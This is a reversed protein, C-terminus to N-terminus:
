WRHFWANSGDNNDDVGGGGGGVVMMMEMVGNVSDTFADRRLM